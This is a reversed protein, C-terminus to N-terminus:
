IFDFTSSVPYASVRNVYILSTSREPSITNTESKGCLENQVEPCLTKLPLFTEDRKMMGGLSKETELSFFDSPHTIFHKELRFRQTWILLILEPLLSVFM